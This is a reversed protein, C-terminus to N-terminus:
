LQLVPLSTPLILTEWTNAAQTMAETEVSRTNNTRDEVKLRVRIGAAPSYVRVSMQTTTATFPIKATFGAGITTGAWTQAGSTKTTKKVKNAANGPDVDNLTVNGGFDSVAYNVLPNDFTVPLTLLSTPLQNTLRIDDFLFTFNASGDGV